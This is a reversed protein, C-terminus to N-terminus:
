YSSYQPTTSPEVGKGPNSWKVRSAYRINSLILCPLMLYWKQTKSIIHGPISGLDEPDNAFVRGVLVILRNASQAM